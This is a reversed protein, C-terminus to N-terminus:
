EDMNILYAAQGDGPARGLQSSWDGKTITIGVRMASGTLFKLKGREIRMEFRTNNGSNEVKGVRFYSSISQESFSFAAQDGEHYFVALEQNLVPGELLVDYGGEPFAGSLYGTGANNDTDLYFDFIDGANRAVNLDMYVYVYNGDYDFKVENVVGSTSEGTLVHQKIEDWDTLSNDDTRIPSSKAINIVTSGEYTAGNALTAYLTAVYKGKGPYQHEPNPDTSEKGDGFDWRFNSAGETNNKFRVDNGNVELEFIVDIEPIVSEQFKTCGAIAVLAFVVILYKLQKM